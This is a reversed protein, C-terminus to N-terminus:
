AEAGVQFQTITNGGVGTANFLEPEVLKFGQSGPFGTGQNLLVNEATLVNGGDADFGGIAGTDANTLDLGAVYTAADANFQTSFDALSSFAGKSANTM